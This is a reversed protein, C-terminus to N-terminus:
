SSSASDNSLTSSPCPRLPANGPQLKNCRALVGCERRFLRSGLSILRHEFGALSWCGCARVGVNRCGVVDCDSVRGCDVCERCRGGVDRLVGECHPCRSSTGAAGVSVVPLGYDAALSVLRDRLDAYDWHSEPTWGLDEVAVGAGLVVAARVIECAVLENCRRKLVSIKGRRVDAEGYLVAAKDFWGNADCEFAKARLHEVENFLKSIRAEVNRVAKPESFPQSYVGSGVFSWVATNKEGMDVSVWGSLESERAKPPRPSQATFDFLLEGGKCRITPATIKGAYRRAKKPMDFVLVATGCALKLSLCIKRTKPNVVLDRYHGDTASIPLQGNSHPSGDIHGNNNIAARYKKIENVSPSTDDFTDNYAQKIERDTADPNDLILKETKYRTIYIDTKSAINYRLMEMFNYSQVAPPYPIDNLYERMAANKKGKMNKGASALEEILPRFKKEYYENENKRMLESMNILENTVTRTFEDDIVGDPDCVEFKDLTFTQHSQKSTRHTKRWPKKKSKTTM